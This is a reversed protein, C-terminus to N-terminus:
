LVERAWRLYKEVVAYGLRIEQLREGLRCADEVSVVPRCAFRLLLAEMDEVAVRGAALAAMDTEVIAPPVSRRNGM